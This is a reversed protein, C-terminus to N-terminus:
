GGGEGFVMYGHKEGACGTVTRPDVPPAQVSVGDANLGWRLSPLFASGCQLLRPWRERGAEGGGEGERYPFGSLGSAEEYAQYGM